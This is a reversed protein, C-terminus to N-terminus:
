YSSKIKRYFRRNYSIPITLAPFGGISAISTFRILSETGETDKGNINITKKEKNPAPFPITPITILAVFYSLIAHGRSRIL